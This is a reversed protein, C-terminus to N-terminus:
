ITISIIPSRGLAAWGQRQERRNRQHQEDSPQHDGRRQAAHHRIRVSRRCRELLVEGGLM